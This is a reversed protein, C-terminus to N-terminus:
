VLHLLYFKFDENGTVVLLHFPIEDAEGNGNPDGNIFAELVKIWIMLLKPM